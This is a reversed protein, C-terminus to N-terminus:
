DDDSGADATPALNGAGPYSESDFPDTQATTETTDSAGDGDSDSVTGSDQEVGWSLYRMRTSFFFDQIVTYTSGYIAQTSPLFFGSQDDLEGLAQSVRSSSCDWRGFLRRETDLNYYHDIQWGTLDVTPPTDEVLATSIKSAMTRLMPYASVNYHNYVLADNGYYTVYLDPNAATVKSSASTFVNLSAASSDHNYYLWWWWTQINNPDYDNMYSQWYPCDASLLARWEATSNAPSANYKWYLLYRTMIDEIRQKRTTDTELGWWKVLVEDPGTGFFSYAPPEMARGWTPKGVKSSGDNVWYQDSWSGRGDPGDNQDFRDMLYDVNLRVADLYTSENLGSNTKAEEWFAMLFFVAGAMSRDNLTVMVNHPLSYPYGASADVGPRDKMIAYPFIQPIGGISYPTSSDNPDVVDKFGVIADALWKAGALYDDRDPDDEPLAQYLRLLFYGGLYSCGDFTSLNQYDDMVNGQGGWPFYNVFTEYDVVEGYTPSGPQRDYGLVGMDYFWGGYGNDDQAVLLTDGISKACRMLFKDQTAEYARIFGFGVGPHGTSDEQEFFMHPQPIWGSDSSYYRDNPDNPDIVTIKGCYSYLTGEVDHDIVARQPWYAHGAKTIADIIDQKTYAAARSSGFLM